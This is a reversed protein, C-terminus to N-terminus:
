RKCQTVKVLVLYSVQIWVYMNQEPKWNICLIDAASSLIAVGAEWKTHITVKIVTKQIVRSPVLPM